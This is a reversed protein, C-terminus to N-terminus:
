DKLVQIQWEYNTYEDNILSIKTPAKVFKKDDIDNQVYFQEGLVQIINYLGDHNKTDILYKIFRLPVGKEVGLGDFEKMEELGRKAIYKPLREDLIKTMKPTFVYDFKFKDMEVFVGELSYQRQTEVAKLFQSKVVEKKKKEVKKAVVKKPKKKKKFFQKLPEPALPPLEVKKEVKAVKKEEKKKEQKVLLNDLGQDRFLKLSGVPFLQGGAFRADFNNKLYESTVPILKSLVPISDEHSKNQIAFRRLCGKAYGNANVALLADSDKIAQYAYITSTMGYLRDKESCIKQILNADKQCVFGLTREIDKKNKIDCNNQECFLKLRMQSIDQYAFKKYNEFWETQYKEANFDISINEKEINDLVIQANKLFFRMDTTQADCTEFLKKFDLNCSNSLDLKELTVQHYKLSEFLYSISILRFLYRYYDYNESMEAHPCVMAKKVTGLYDSLDFLDAQILDLFLKNDSEFQFHSNGSYEDESLSLHNGMGSYENWIVKEKFDGGFPGFYQQIDKEGYYAPNWVKAFLDSIQGLSLIFSLIIVKDM